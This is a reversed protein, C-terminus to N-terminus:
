AVRFIVEVPQEIPVETPPEEDERTDFIFSQTDGTEGDTGSQSEMVEESELDGLVDAM